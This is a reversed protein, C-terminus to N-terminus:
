VVFQKFNTYSSAKVLKVFGARGDSGGVPLLDVPEIVAENSGNRLFRVMQVASTVTGKSHDDADIWYEANLAMGAPVTMLAKQDSGADWLLEFKETSSGLAESALVHGFADPHTVIADLRSGGKVGSALEKPNEVLALCHVDFTTGDDDDDGDVWVKVRM